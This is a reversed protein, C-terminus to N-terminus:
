RVNLRFFVEDSVELNRLIQFPYWIPRPGASLGGPLVVRLECASESRDSLKLLLEAIPLDRKTIGDQNLLHAGPQFCM